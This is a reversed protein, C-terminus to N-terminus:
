KKTHSPLKKQKWKAYQNCVSVNITVFTSYPFLTMTVNGVVYLHTVINIWAFVTGECASKNQVDINSHVLGKM